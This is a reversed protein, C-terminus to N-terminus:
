GCIGSQGPCLPLADAFTLAAPDLNYPEGVLFASDYAITIVDGANLVVSTATHAGLAFASLDDISDVTSNFTWTAVDDTATVSVVAHCTAVATATGISSSRRWKKM